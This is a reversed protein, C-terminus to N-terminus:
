AKRQAAKDELMVTFVVHLFRSFDQSLVRAKPDFEVLRDTECHCCRGMIGEHKGGESNLQM